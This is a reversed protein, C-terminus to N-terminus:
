MPGGSGAQRGTSKTKRQRSEAMWTCKIARAAGDISLVFTALKRSNHLCKFREFTSIIVQYYKHTSIGIIKLRKHRKRALFWYRQLTTLFWWILCLWPVIVWFWRGYPARVARNGKCGAVNQRASTSTVVRRLDREGADLLASAGSM